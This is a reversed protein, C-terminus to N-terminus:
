RPCGLAKVAKAPPEQLAPLDAPMDAGSPVFWVEVRRFKAKDDNEKISQNRREKVSVECITPKPESKQDTGVWAVKVRGLDLAPCIGKGASLVAATNLVRQRDLTRMNRETSDIHGVLIVTAQPDAQLRQTLDQLLLRKGCNNVRASRTPFNIETKTARPKQIVTVTATSRGEGGKNRATATLTVTKRQEGTANADFTVTSSDYTSGSVTGNGSGEVSYTLQTQDNCDWNATASLTATQGKQLSNPSATFNSITPAAERFEVTVPDSTKTVSGASATVAVRKSGITDSTIDVTNSNGGVPAGDSTWAYTFTQGSPGGTATATLKVSSGPCVPMAGSISVQIPTEVPPAECPPQCLRNRCPPACPGFRDVVAINQEERVGFRFSIGASTQLADESGEHPSYITGPGSPNRPIGYHSTQSWQGRVDVRFGLHRSANYKIGVGYNVSPGYRAQLNRLGPGTYRAKFLGNEEPIYRTYGPGLTIFPRVKSTRPSLHLVPNIAFTFNSSEFDITRNVPGFLRLRVDNHGVTVSQELAWFRSFDETLRVGGIPGDLTNQIPHDYFWQYGFFPSVEIVTQAAVPVAMAFAAVAALGAYGSLRKAIEKGM